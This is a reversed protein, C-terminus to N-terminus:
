FIEQTPVAERNGGQPEKEEEVRKGRVPHRIPGKRVQSKPVLRIEVEADFETLM